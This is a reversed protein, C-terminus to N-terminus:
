QSTGPVLYATAGVIFLVLLISLLGMIVTVALPHPFRMYNRIAFYWWVALVPFPAFVAITMLSESWRWGWPPHIYLGVAILHLLLVIFIPFSFSFGAIRAFHKARVRTNRRTIPLLVFTLAYLVSFAIWAVSAILAPLTGDPECFWNTVDWISLPDFRMLLTLKVIGIPISLAMIFCILHVAIHGLHVRHHLSIRRWFSWPLCSRAMTKMSAWMFLWREFPAYEVCWAPETFTPRLVDRWLFVYGCETCTGELPCAGADDWTAVAGCLDYGCRPCHCRQGAHDSSCKM